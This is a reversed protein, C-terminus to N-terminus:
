RLGIVLVRLDEDGDNVLAHSGGPYIATIDGAEITSREGNLNMTGKGSIIYYYEEEDHTHLGISVGPALVDDHLFHLQRGEVESPDLVNTWDLAGEGDHCHTLPQRRMEGRNKILTTKM